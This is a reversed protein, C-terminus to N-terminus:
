NQRARTLIPGYGAMLHRPTSKRLNQVGEWGRREGKGEGGREKGGKEEGKGRGRGALSDPPGAPGPEL